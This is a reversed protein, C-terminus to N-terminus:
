ILQLLPGSSLVCLDAVCLVEERLQLFRPQRAQGSDVTKRDLVVRDLHPQYLCHEQCGGSLSAEAATINRWETQSSRFDRHYASCIACGEDRNGATGYGRIVWAPVPDHLIGLPWAYRTVGNRGIRKGACDHKAITHISIPPPRSVERSTRGEHQARSSCGNASAVRSSSCGIWHVHKSQSKIM